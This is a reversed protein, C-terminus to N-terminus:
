AEKELGEGGLSGALSCTSNSRRWRSAETEWAKWGSSLAGTGAVESVGSVGEVAVEEDAAEEAVGFSSSATFWPRKRPAFGSNSPSM